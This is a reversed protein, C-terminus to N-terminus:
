QNPSNNTTLNYIQQQNHVTTPQSTTDKNTQVTTPQSTTYKNPQIKKLHKKHKNVNVFSLAILFFFVILIITLNNQM